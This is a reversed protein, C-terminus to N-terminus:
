YKALYMQAGIPTGLNYKAAFARIKTRMRYLRTRHIYSVFRILSKCKLDACAKYAYVSKPNSPNEDACEIRGNPQAFVLFVYRHLGSLPPPGSPIYAFLTDGDDVRDGPVNTVLWHLVEGLFSWRRSPADPDIMALTYLQQPQPQKGSDTAANTSWTVQPATKVDSTLLQQGFQLPASQGAYLIRLEATGYGDILEPVIASKDMIAPPDYHWLAVM